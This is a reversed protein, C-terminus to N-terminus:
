FIFNSRKVLCVPFYSRKILDKYHNLFLIKNELLKRSGKPNMLLQFEYMFGTGAWEERDSRNPEYFRFCFYDKFSINYRIASAVADCAIAHKSRGSVVSSYQLFKRLMRIDSEKFYYFLYIIRRIFIM